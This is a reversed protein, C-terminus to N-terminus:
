NGDGLAYVKFDFLSDSDDYYKSVKREQKNDGMGTTENVEESWHVTVKGEFKIKLGTM